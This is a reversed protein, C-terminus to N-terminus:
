VSRYRLEYQREQDYMAGRARPIAKAVAKAVQEAITLNSEDLNVYLQTMAVETSTESHYFGVRVVCSM